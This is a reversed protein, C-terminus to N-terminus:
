KFPPVTAQDLNNGRESTGITVDYGEKFQSETFVAGTVVWCYPHIQLILEVGLCKDGLHKPHIALTHIILTKAKSLCSALRVSYGWYLGGETRPVHPAVVM